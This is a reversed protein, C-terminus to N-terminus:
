RILNFWAFWAALALATFALVAFGKRVRRREEPKFIPRPELACNALMRWLGIEPRRDLYGVLGTGETKEERDTRSTVESAM